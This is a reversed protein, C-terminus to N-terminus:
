STDNRRRTSCCPSAAKIDASPACGLPGVSTWAWFCWATPVNFLKVSAPPWGLQRKQPLNKHGIEGNGVCVIIVTRRPTPVSPLPHWPSFFLMMLMDRSANSKLM